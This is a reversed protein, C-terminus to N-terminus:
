IYWAETKGLEGAHEKAYENDPHVQVSLDEKADIIKVLLPFEKEEPNGFLEPYKEWLEKLSMGDYPGGEVHSLGNEHASIAWYEGTTETPIEFGFLDHLKTGGWIKDQMAGKLFIPQKM